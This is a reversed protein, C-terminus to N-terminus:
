WNPTTKFGSIIDVAVRAFRVGFLEQSLPMKGKGPGPKNICCEPCTTIWRILDGSMGPWYYRKALRELSHKKGFHGSTQHGHCHYMIDRRMAVPIVIQLVKKKSPWIKWRCLLGDRVTLESWQALLRRMERNELSIQPRAPRIGTPVQCILRKITPDANQFKQITENSWELIAAMGTDFPMRINAIVANHEGCDNCDGRQCKRIPIRSLADANLHKVGPRHQIQSNELGFESLHTLWRGVM